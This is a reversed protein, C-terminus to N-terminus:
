SCASARRSDQLQVFALGGACLLAFLAGTLTFSSSCAVWVLKAPCVPSCSKSDWACPKVRAWSPSQAERAAVLVRSTVWFPVPRRRTNEYPRALAELREKIQADSPASLEGTGTSGASTCCNRFSNLDKGLLVRSGASGKVDDPIRQQNVSGNTLMVLQGLLPCRACPRKSCSLPPFPKPLKWCIPHSATSPAPAAWRFCFKQQAPSQSSCKEARRGATLRM